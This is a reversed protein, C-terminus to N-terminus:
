CVEEEGGLYAKIVKPNNRIQEPTGDAIMQGYDLVYIRNCVSMVLPMDHEILIVTLDFKDRIFKILNMLEHTESPNMGAAPEDLLLIKPNSVLARAIELRRQEGYPLNKALENKKDHLNFIELVEMVKKEANQEEKYFSPLRFFSSLIGYKVNTHFGVRVNDAVTMNGFLRINQFTRSVGASAISHAKMKSVSLEKEFNYVVDGESPQYIGTLLNFLTTKGAGNPGILGIIEGSNVEMNVGQVAKVGGFFRSLNSAKLVLM